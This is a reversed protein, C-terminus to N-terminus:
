PFCLNLILNLPSIVMVTKMLVFKPKTSIYGDRNEDARIGIYSIAEDDGVFDELPRIKMKVTCWRMQPSPLYYVMM